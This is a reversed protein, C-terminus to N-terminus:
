IDRDSASDEQILSDPLSERLNGNEDFYDDFETKEFEHIIPSPGQKRYVVALIVGSILGGLHGEWSMGEEIPFVYWFLGGYWFIVAFSIALLKYNRRILGSTILFGFVGYIVGSLGIHYGEQALFWTLLGSFIYVLFFISKSLTHYFSNLLNFLIFFTITNNVLHSISSHIMPAFLIGRLGVVSAPQVGLNNLNSNSIYEYIYVAWIFLLIVYSFQPKWRISENSM